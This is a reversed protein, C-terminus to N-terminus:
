GCARSRCRTRAASRATSTCRAACSTTCCRPWRCRSRPSTPARRTRTAGQRDAVRHLARAAPVARAPHVLRRRVAAGDAEQRAAEGQTRRSLARECMMRLAKKCWRSRACRTISAAAASARRRSRSPRARAASCTRRRCAARQRLPHLRPPRRGAARRRPRRAPRDQPGAHRAPRPVDVRGPAGPVDPDTIAM